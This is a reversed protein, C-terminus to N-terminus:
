LVTPKLLLKGPIQKGPIKILTKGTKKSTKVTKKAALTLTETLVETLCFLCFPNVPSRKALHRRGAAVSGGEKGLAGGISGLEVREQIDRDQDRQRGFSREGALPKNNNYESNIDIREAVSLTVAVMLCALLLNGRAASQM